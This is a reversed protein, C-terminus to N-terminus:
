ALCGYSRLDQIDMDQALMTGEQQEEKTKGM